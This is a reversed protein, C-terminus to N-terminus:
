NFQCRNGKGSGKTLLIRALRYSLYLNEKENSTVIYSNTIKIPKYNNPMLNQNKFIFIGFKADRNELAENMETVLKRSNSKFSADDKCEIVLRNSKEGDIDCIIDGKKGTKGPIDGTREVVDQYSQSIEEILDYVVEEFKKGKQTSKSKIEEIEELKMVERWIDKIESERVEKIRNDVQKLEDFLNQKLQAIPSDPINPSLMKKIETESLSSNKKIKEILKSFSSDKNSLNFSKELLTQLKSNKDGIYEEMVEQFRGSKEGFNEEMLIKLRNLPSEENGMDFTKDIYSQMKSFSSNKDTLSFNDNFTKNLEKKEDEMYTRFKSFLSNSNSFDFKNEHEELFKKFKGLVSDQKEESFTDNLINSISERETKLFVKFEGLVSSPNNLDLEKKNEELTKQFQSIVSDKDTLSFYKEFNGNMDEREKILVGKFKGLLSKSNDSNFEEKNKEMFDRFRSIMSKNNSDDLYLALKEDMQGQQKQFSTQADLLFKDFGRQIFDMNESLVMQRLGVTGIIIIKKIWEEYEKEDKEKLFSCLIKDSIKLNKIEVSNDKDNIKIM